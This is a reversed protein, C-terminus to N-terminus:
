LSDKYKIFGFISVSNEVRDIYYVVTYGKFVDERM